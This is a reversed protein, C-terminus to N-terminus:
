KVWPFISKNKCESRERIHMAIGEDVALATGRGRLPFAKEICGYKLVV